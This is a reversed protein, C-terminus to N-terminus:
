FNTVTIAAFLSSTSFHPCRPFLISCLPTMEFGRAPELPAIFRARVM